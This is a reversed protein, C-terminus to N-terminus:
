RYRDRQLTREAIVQIKLEAVAPRVLCVGVDRRYGISRINLPRKHGKGKLKSRGRYLYAMGGLLSLLIDPLYRTKLVVQLNEAATTEQEQDWEEQSPEGHQLALQTRGGFYLDPVSIRTSCGVM